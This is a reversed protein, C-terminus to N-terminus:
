PQGWSIRYGASFGAGSPLNRGSLPLLATLQVQGPGAGYAVTPQLQVLRRAATEIEVGLYRPARGWLWELALEAQVSGGIRGGAALHAFWEDGPRRDVGANRERWRYGVWGLLYLPVGRLANGAELSLEWDRQGESLPILTADVPFDRGPLKLGARLAVPAPWGFLEPSVRLSLRLDGLGAAQREGSQDAYRLAHVPVQAWADLGWTLGLAGTLYISNIRVQGAALFPQRAGTTGFYRDSVQRYGSLQLWGSGPPLTRVGRGSALVASSHPASCLAQASLEAPTTSLLGLVLAALSGRCRSM